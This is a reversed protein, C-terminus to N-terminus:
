FRQEDATKKKAFRVEIEGKQMKWAAPERLSKRTGVKKQMRQFIFAAGRGYNGFGGGFRKM